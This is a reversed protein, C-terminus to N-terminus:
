IIEIHTLQKKTTETKYYKLIESISTGNEKLIQDYEKRLAFLMNSIDSDTQYLSILARIGSNNVPVAPYHFANTYYGQKMLGFCIKQCMDPKGAAFFAIPSSKETILPLGLGKATLYFLDMKSRLEDQRIKIEKSLHIKSSEIIAGLTAPSVPSVFVLPAACTLIRKKMELDNCIVVGGEAGYGKCLSTTIIVRPHTGLLQNIYGQGRDGNWSLGHSDDVYLHLQEYKNLLTKIENIPLKDGYGSYIGDVLYWIKTFKNKLEKIKDELIDMRSHRITEIHNGYSKLLDSALKVSTHVQHDLIIADDIDTLIPLVGIHVLTTKPFLVVPKQFVKSLQDEATQYLDLELYARSVSAYFGHKEIANIAGQKIREDHGLALYDCLSFNVYEKGKVKFTNSTFGLSDVTVHGLGISASKQLISFIQDYIKKRM